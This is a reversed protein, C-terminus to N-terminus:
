AAQRTRFADVEATLTGAEFDHCQAVVFDKVAMMEEPTTNEPRDAFWGIEALGRMLLFNPIM